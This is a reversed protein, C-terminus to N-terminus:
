KGSNSLQHRIRSLSQPAIGLYNAIYRLPIRSITNPYREAFKTYRTTADDNFMEAREIFLRYVIMEMMKITFFYWGPIERVLVELDSERWTLLTADTMAEWYYEAEPNLEKYDEVFLTFEGEAPFRITSEKGEADVSYVRFVGEVIFAAQNEREGERPFREGAKCDLSRTHAAIVDLYPLIATDIQRAVPALLEFIRALEM